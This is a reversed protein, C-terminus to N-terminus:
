ATFGIHRRPTPAPIKDAFIEALAYDGPGPLSKGLHGALRAAQEHPLRDFLRHCLLRGPRLLAPDIETARCNITCIVQLRLFDALMGDSLNLIASVQDRNDAGRAMLAADSDELVVVFNEKEYHRREAAWFGVFEPNSLLSLSGNPIFYFRHSETLEGMLHRLYSTKGTGPPGELITLGSRHRRLLRLCERHWELFGAGYHLELRAEDLVTDPSLPVNQTSIDRGTRILRYSGGRPESPLVADDHFQRAVTAAEEATEACAIVRSADAYIFTRHGLRFTLDDWLIEGDEIHHRQISRFLQAAHKSLLRQLDYKGNMRCQHLSGGGFAALVPAHPRDIYPSFAGAEALECVLQAPARAPQADHGPSDAGTEPPRSFHLQM